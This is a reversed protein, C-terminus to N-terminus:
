TITFMQFDTDNKTLTLNFFDFEQIKKEALSNFLKWCLYM